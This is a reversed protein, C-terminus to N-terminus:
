FRKIGLVRDRLLSLAFNLNPTQAADSGRASIGLSVSPSLSLGVTEPLVTIGAADVM